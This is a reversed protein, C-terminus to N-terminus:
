DTYVIFNLTFILLPLSLKNNLKMIKYFQVKIILSELLMFLRLNRPNIPWQVQPNNIVDQEVTGIVSLFCSVM